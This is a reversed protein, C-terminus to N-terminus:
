RSTFNALITIYRALSGRCGGRLKTRGAAPLFPGRDPQRLSAFLPNVRENDRAQDVATRNASIASVSPCIVEVNMEKTMGPKIPHIAGQPM